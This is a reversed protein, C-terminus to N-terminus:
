RVGLNGLEYGNSRLWALYRTMDVTGTSADARPTRSLRGNANLGSPYYSIFQGTNAYTMGTGTMQRQTGGAGGTIARDESCGPGNLCYQNDSKDHLVPNAPM